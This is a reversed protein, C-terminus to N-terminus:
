RGNKSGRRYRLAGSAYQSLADKSMKLAPDAYDLAVVELGPFNYELLAKLKPLLGKDPAYTGSSNDIVLEWQVLADEVANTAYFGSWYGDVM